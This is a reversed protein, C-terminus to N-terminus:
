FKYSGAVRAVQINYNSWNYAFPFVTCGLVANLCLPASANLNADVINYYLYETRILLNPTTMWEVGAGIVWGSKTTNFSVTSQGNSGAVAPGNLTANYEINAWAVGGTAYLFTNNWGSYGFRGRVSSLWETSASMRLSCTACPLFALNIGSTFPVLVPKILVPNTRNDALSSWSIDGEVGLVWAPAFQWNYGGQIGGLAGLPNSTGTMKAAFAENPDFFNWDPRSQWAAGAHVGIYFGNWSPLAPVPASVVSLDAAIAGRGMGFVVAALLALRHMEVGM